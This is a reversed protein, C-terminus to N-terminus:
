PVESVVHDPHKLLKLLVVVADRVELPLRHPDPEDFGSGQLLQHLAQCSRVGALELGGVDVDEQGGVSGERRWFLNEIKQDFPLVAEQDQPVRDSPPPSM